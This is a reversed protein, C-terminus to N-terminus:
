ALASAVARAMPDAKAREALQAPTVTHLRRARGRKCTIVVKRGYRRNGAVDLATGSDTPLSRLRAAEAALLPWRDEAIAIKDKHAIHRGISVIETPTYSQFTLTFHVRSALGPNASLFRRMETPHGAVIFVLQDARFVKM